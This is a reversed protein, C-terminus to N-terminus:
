NSSEEKKSAEKAQQERIAENQIDTKDQEWQSNPDEFQDKIKQMREAREQEEAERALREKEM